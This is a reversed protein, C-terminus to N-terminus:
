VKYDIRASPLSLHHVSTFATIFRRTADFAPFKKVLQFGILKELLVRSCPTLISYDIRVQIISQQFIGLQQTSNRKRYITHSFKCDTHLVSNNVAEASKSSTINFNINSFVSHSLTSQVSKAWSLTFHRARTFVTIFTPNWLLHICRQIASYCIAQHRWSKANTAIPQTTFSHSPPLHSFFKDVDWVPIPKALPLGM